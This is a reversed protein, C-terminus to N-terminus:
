GSNLKKIQNKKINSGMEKGWFTGSVCNIEYKWSKDM